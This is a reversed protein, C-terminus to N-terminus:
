GRGIKKYVEQLISVVDMMKRASADEEGYIKKIRRVEAKRNKITQKISWGSPIYARDTIEQQNNDVLSVNRAGNHFYGICVGNIIEVKLYVRKDGYCNGGIIELMEADKIAIYLSELRCKTTENTDDEPDDIINKITGIRYVKSNELESVTSYYELGHLRELVDDYVASNHIKAIAINEFKLESHLARINM